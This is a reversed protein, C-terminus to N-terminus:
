EEILSIKLYYTATCHNLENNLLSKIIYERNYGFDEVFKVANENINLNNKENLKNKRDNYKEDEIDNEEKNVNNINNNDFNNDKLKKDIENISNNLSRMIKNKKENRLFGQDVDANYKVEYNLNLERVKLNFKMINDKIMLDSFYIEEDDNYYPNIETNNPTIIYSTSDINKNESDFESELNKYTFNEVLKEKENFRYDINLKGYIIKEAKTFLEFNNKKLDFDKLWSHNLIDNLNFRKDPNVELINKILDNCELSINDIYPYIGKIINNHLENDNDGKFPVFGTLMFYLVVGCSWIDSKFPDFPKNYLLEPAIYAPTGCTENVLTGKTIEKGVGFDCIKIQNDLTLLINHPKIDRHVINKSHIYKLTEILQKFINKSQNETLKTMKKVTQLLNGGMINEMVIFTYNKNEFKEFLKVVNKHGRLKKM